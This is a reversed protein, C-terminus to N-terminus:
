LSVSVIKPRRPETKRACENTSELEPELQTLFASISRGCQTNCLRQQEDPEDYTKGVKGSPATSRNEVTGRPRIAPWRM